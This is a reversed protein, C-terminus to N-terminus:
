TSKEIIDNASKSFPLVRGRDNWCEPIGCSYKGHCHFGYHRRSVTEIQVVEGCRTKYKGPTDIICSEM